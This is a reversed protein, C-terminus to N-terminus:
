AAVVPSTAGNWVPHCIIRTQVPQGFQGGVSDAHVFEVATTFTKSATTTGYGGGSTRVRATIVVAGDGGAEIVTANWANLTVIEIRPQKLRAHISIPFICGDGMTQQVEFGFDIMASQVMEIAAGGYTCPGLSYLEDVVTSGGPLTADVTVDLPNADAAAGGAYVAYTIRAAQGQQLELREPVIMGKSIALKHGQTAHRTGGEAAYNTWLELANASIATPGTGFAALAEALKITTFRAIPKQENKSVWTNYAYGDGGELFPTIEPRVESNVIGQVFTSGVKVVHIYHNQGM